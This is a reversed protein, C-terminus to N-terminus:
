PAAILRKPRVDGMLAVGQRNMSAVRRPLDYYRAELPATRSGKTVITVPHRYRLLM